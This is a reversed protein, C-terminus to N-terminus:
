GGPNLHKEGPKEDPKENLTRFVHGQASKMLKPRYPKGGVLAHDLYIVRAHARDLIASSLYLSSGAPIPVFLGLTVIGVLVSGTMALTMLDAVPIALPRLDIGHLTEKLGNHYNDLVASESSTDLFERGVEKRVVQVVPDVVVVSRIESRPPLHQRSVKTTSCAALLSCALLAPSVAGLSKRFPAALTFIALLFPSRM